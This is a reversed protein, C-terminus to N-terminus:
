RMIFSEDIYDLLYNLFEQKSKLGLQTFCEKLKYHMSDWFCYIEKEITEYSSHNACLSDVLSFCDHENMLEKIKQESEVFYFEGILSSYEWPIQTCNSADIVERRVKKFIDEIKVGEELLHNCLCETYLGNKGDGDSAKKGPSTAYAIFTGQPANFATLKNESHVGRSNDLFERCCDLIIICTFDKEKAFKLLFDSIDVGMEEINDYDIKADCPILYNRGNHEIGHGAYYFLATDIGFLDFTFKNICDELEYRSLDKFTHTDFQASKLVKDMKDVDNLTNKLSNIREYNANGVIYARRNM